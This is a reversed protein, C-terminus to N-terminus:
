NKRNLENTWQEARNEIESQSLEVSFGELNLYLTGFDIEANYGMSEFWHKANELTTEDINM